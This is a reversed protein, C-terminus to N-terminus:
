SPSSRLSARTRPAYRNEFAALDADLRILDRPNVVPRDVFLEICRQEDAGQVGIARAFRRALEASDLSEQALSPAVRWYEALAQARGRRLQEALLDFRRARQFLRARALARTHPSMFELPPPERPIERDAFSRWAFVLALLLLAATFPRARKATAFEVLTPANEGMSSSEDFRVATGQAFREAIRVALVSHDHKALRGNDFLEGCTALVLSGRGIPVSLILPARAGDELLVTAFPLSEAGTFASVGAAALALGEREEWTTEISQKVDSDRGFLGLHELEYFGFETRLREIESASSLEVLLNGGRSTFRRYHKPNSLSRQLAQTLPASGVRTPGDGTPVGTAEEPEEWPEEWPEEEPEEGPAENQEGDVSLPELAVPLRALWVLGEGVPLAGPRKEWRQASFEFERLLRALGLRGDDAPSRADRAINTSEGPALLTSMGVLAALALLLLAPLRGKM